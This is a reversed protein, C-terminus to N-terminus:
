LAIAANATVIESRSAVRVTIRGPDDPGPLSAHLGWIAQNVREASQHRIRNIHPQNKKLLAM